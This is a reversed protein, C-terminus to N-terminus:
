DTTTCLMLILHFCVLQGIVLWLLSPSLKHLAQKLVTSFNVRGLTEYPNSLRWEGVAMKWEAKLPKFPGLDNPQCVHSAHAKFCYLAIKNMECLKSTHLTLHSKYGDMWYVVWDSDNLILEDEPVLGKEQRRIVALEPIFVNAMFEFFIESNMWGSESRGASFGPPMKDIISSPVARQYPYIIVSTMLKGDARTTVLVTIQEKLGGTETYVTEGRAALVKGSKPDLQFGTEDGNFQRTADTLIYEIGRQEFFKRADSFWGRVCNETLSGRARCISEANRQAIEPHRALFAAFWGKGPRNGVFPNDRPDDNLIKQVSDLLGDKNIPIGRRSLETIWECLLQEEDHTLISSPGPRSDPTYLGKKLDQLTTRPVQWKTAAKRVSMGDTIDMLAGRAQDTSYEKRSPRPKTETLSKVQSQEGDVASRNKSQETAKATSKVLMDTSHQKDSVPSQENEESLQKKSQRSAVLKYKSQAGSVASRFKLKKGTARKSACKQKKRAKIRAM